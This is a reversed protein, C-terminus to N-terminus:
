GNSTCLEIAKPLYVLIYESYVVDMVAILTLVNENDGFAVGCGSGTLGWSEPVALRIETETSKDTRFIGNLQFGAIRPQSGESPMMNALNM